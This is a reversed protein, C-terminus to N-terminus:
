RFLIFFESLLKLINQAKIRIINGNVPLCEPMTRYAAMVLVQLTVFAQLEQAICNQAGHYAFVQKLEIGFLILTEERLDPAPDDVPLM